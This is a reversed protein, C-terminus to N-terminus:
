QERSPPPIQQIIPSDRRAYRLDVRTDRGFYLRIRAASHDIDADTPNNLYVFGLRDNHSPNTFVKCMTVAPIGVMADRLMELVERFRHPSQWYRFVIKYQADAYKDHTTHISTEAPGRHLRPIRPHEVYVRHLHAVQSAFREESSDSLGEGDQSRRARPFQEHEEWEDGHRTDRHLKYRSHYPMDSLVDPSLHGALERMRTDTDEESSSETTSLESHPNTAVSSTDHEEDDNEM